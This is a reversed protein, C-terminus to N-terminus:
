GPVSGPAMALGLANVTAQEWRSREAQDRMHLFYSPHPIALLRRGAVDHWKWRADEFRGLNSRTVGRWAVAGAAVIVLPDVTLIEHWIRDESAQVQFPYPTRNGPPRWPVTNTVYCLQWPIGAQRFIDQLLRGSPGVFPRLQREEEAGPAEGVVMFPSDLPGYGRVLQRGSALEALMPTAAYEEYIGDMAEARLDNSTVTV